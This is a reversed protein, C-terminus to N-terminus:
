NLDIRTGDIDVNGGADIKLNGTSTITLAGTCGITRDGVVTDSDLGMLTTARAGVITTTSSGAINTDFNGQIIRTENGGIRKTYNETVNLSYEQDIETLDNQGVKSIREGKIYETKTGEVELHYNGKVLTRMDGNVTLNVAGKVLMQKNGFVVEYGDGVVTLTRDGLANMEEYTGSKHFRSLREHGVSDDVEIIHGSASEYVHNDPYIPKIVKDVPVNEWKPAVYFDDAKDPAISTVKPPVAVDVSEQRNADKSTYPNYSAYASRAPRPNDPEDSDVFDNRPYEASPDYFGRKPDAYDTSAAPLTGLIFPDQLHAGDRFFGVVWSGQKIGTPSQGVGSVSASTVPLMVHSWPLSETPLESKDETHYGYCRVRVRGMENPDNIDEVVGTFFASYHKFGTENIKM